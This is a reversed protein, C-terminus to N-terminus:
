AETSYDFRGNKLVTADRDRVRVEFAAQGPTNQWYDIKLTEGPFVPASFRGALGQVCAGQAGCLAAMLGRCAIGFTSLGHLIPKDFGANRAVDPDAHLPNLDGSLRYILALQPPTDIDLSGDPARQPKVALTESQEPSGGFGGAGRCFINHNITAIPTGTEADHIRRETVILAGKGPGKDVLETIRTKARIRGEVPLSTHMRMAQEGHVVKLYDVGTKEDRLWAGDYGLVNVMAPVAQMQQAADLFRLQAKDLPDDGYGLGLAYIASDKWTWEQVIEARDLAMLYDPDLPM